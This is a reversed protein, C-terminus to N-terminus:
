KHERPRRVFDWDCPRTITCTRGVDMMETADVNDHSLFSVIWYIGSRKDRLIDGVRLERFESWTM